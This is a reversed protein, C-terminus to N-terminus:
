SVRILRYSFYRGMGRLRCQVLESYIASKDVSICRLSCLLLELEKSTFSHFIKTSELNCTDTQCKEGGWDHTAIVAVNEFNM